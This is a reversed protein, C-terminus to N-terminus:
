DGGPGDVALYQSVSDLESALHDIRHELLDRLSLLGALRGDDHLIPLYTYDRAVMLRLADGYSADVTLTDVDKTMVDGLTTTEPDRKALVIRDVLDRYTFIGGLKDGKLVPLAGLKRENMIRSADMVSVGAGIEGFPRLLLGKLAM